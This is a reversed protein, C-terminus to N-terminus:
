LKSIAELATPLADGGARVKITPAYGRKEVRRGDKFHASMTSLTVGVKSHPLIVRGVEGYEVAGRTHEGVLIRGPLNELVQVTTECSSACNRDVLILVSAAFVKQKNLVGQPIKELLRDPFQHSKAREMWNLTERRRDEIYTPVVEGNMKLKLASWTWNNVQLAFAEPTQVFTRSEVPTPLNVNADMGLLARALEFGYSDDGGTNGRLDLIFPKGAAVLDRVKELFGDWRSDYVPWFSPIALVETGNISKAVWGDVGAAINRGVRGATAAQGCAQFDLWARLHADRVHDFIEQLQNCFAIASSDEIPIKSLQRGMSPGAYGKDVAFKLLEIDEELQTASLSQPKTLDQTPSLLLDDAAHTAAFTTPLFAAVFFLVASRM